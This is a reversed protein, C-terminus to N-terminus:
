LACWVAGDLHEIEAQRLCDSRRIGGCRSGHRGRQCAPPGSERCPPTCPGSCALPFGASRRASMQANPQTSNSISVPCRANAPSVSESTSTLIMSCSGSQCVSGTLVGGAIRRNSCRQKSFSGLRRSSEAATARMSISSAALSGVGTTSAAPARRPESHRGIAHAAVPAPTATSTVIITAPRARGVSRGARQHGGRHEDIGHAASPALGSDMEGHRRAASGHHKWAVVSAPRNEIPAIEVSDIGLRDHAGFASAVHEERRVAPPEAELPALSNHVAERSPPVGCLNSGLWGSRPPVHPSPSLM